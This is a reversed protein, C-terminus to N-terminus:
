QVLKKYSILEEKARKIKAGEDRESRLSRKWDEKRFIKGREEKRKLREEKMREEKM